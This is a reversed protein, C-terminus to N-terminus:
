LNKYENWFNQWRAFKSSWLLIIVFIFKISCFSIYLSSPTEEIVDNVCFFRLTYFVTFFIIWSSTTRTSKHLVVKNIYFFIDSFRNLFIIGIMKIVHSIYVLWNKKRWVLENNNWQFISKSESFYTWCDWYLEQSFNLIM